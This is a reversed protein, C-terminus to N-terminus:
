TSAFAAALQDPLIPFDHCFGYFAALALAALAGDPGPLVPTVRRNRGRGIGGTRAILAPPCVPTFTVTTLPALCLKRSKRKPEALVAGVILKGADIYAFARM